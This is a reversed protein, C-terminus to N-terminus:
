QWRDVPPVSRPRADSITRLWLLTGDSAFKAVAFDASTGTNDTSGPVLVSGDTDVAVSEAFHHSIATGSISDTGNVTRQWLLTGDPAFKAVIWDSFSLGPPFLAEVQTTGVAIVNGQTDVAVSVARDEIPGKLTQQWLQIGQAPTARPILLLSLAIFLITVRRQMIAM